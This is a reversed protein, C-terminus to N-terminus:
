RVGVCVANRERKVCACGRRGSRSGRGNEQHWGWRGLPAGQVWDQHGECERGAAAGLLTAGAARPKGKPAGWVRALKTGRDGQCLWTGGAHTLVSVVTVPVLHWTPWPPAPSPLAHVPLTHAHVLTTSHQPPTHTHLPIHERASRPTHVTCQRACWLHSLVCRPACVCVRPTCAQVCTHGASGSIPAAPPCPSTPARAGARPPPCVAPGRSNRPFKAANMESCIFATMAPSIISIPTQFSLLNGAQFHVAPFFICILCVFLCKAM